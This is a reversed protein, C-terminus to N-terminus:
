AFTVEGASELSIDFTIEKDHPGTLDFSTIQLSCTFTGLGPIYLKWIRITGALILAVLTSTPADSKFVGSGSASLSKIGAGALLERWKNSSGQNTVDVDGVKITLRQTTIGAVTSYAGAGTTDFQLLMDSGKQAAM